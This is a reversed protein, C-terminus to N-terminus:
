RAILVGAVVGAAASFGAVWYTRNVLRTIRDHLTGVALEMEKRLTQGLATISADVERRCAIGRTMDAETASLIRQVDATLRETTVLLGAIAQANATALDLANTAREDIADVYSKGEAGPTM